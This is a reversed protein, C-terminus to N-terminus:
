TSNVDFFIILLELGKTIAHGARDLNESKETVLFLMFDSLTCIGLMEVTCCAGQAFKPQAVSLADIPWSSELQMGLVMAYDKPTISPAQQHSM